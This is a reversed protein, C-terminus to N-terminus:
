RGDQGSLIEIRKRFQMVLDTRGAMEAAKLGRQYVAMAETARGQIQRALGLNMYAEGLGPNIRIAQEAHRAAEDIRRERLLLGALNVHADAEEPALAAANEYAVIAQAREKREALAYGLNYWGRATAPNLEVTHTWITVEDKYLRGQRWTLVVLVIVLVGSIARLATKAQKARNAEPSGPTQGSTVREILRVLLAAVVALPAINALYQFHDAVYSFRQYALSIVGLTPLSTGVFFLYATLPGKGIRKRTVWLGIALATAAAPFLYQWGTHPNIDWRPYILCLGSPWALKGLYFWIARGTILLRDVWPLIALSEVACTVNKEVWGTLLAMAIGMAAMPLLPWVDRWSPRERKWWLVLLIAAPLSFTVTKSLLAAAFLVLALWYWGWGTTYPMTCPAVGAYKCPAVGAYEAPTGKINKVLAVAPAAGAYKAPTGSTRKHTDSNREGLGSFRMYSLAALLYFTGSLVNKREVVWAVSEVHVPHVAFLAAAMWAAPVALRRLVLWVLLVTTAHLVVNVIHYGTPKLGWLQHEIWFTSFTLPYYQPNARLDSWIRGLGAPDQVVPNEAIYQFDDWIFGASFVPVYAIMAILLLGAAGAM